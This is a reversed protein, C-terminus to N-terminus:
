LPLHPPQGDILFPPHVAPKELQRYHNLAALIAAMAAGQSSVVFDLYWRFSSTVSKEVTDYHDKALVDRLVALSEELGATQDRDAQAKWWGRPALAPDQEAAAEPAGLDELSSSNSLTNLFAM